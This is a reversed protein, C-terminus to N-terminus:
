SDIPDRAYKKWSDKFDNGETLNRSEIHIGKEDRQKEPANKSDQIGIAIEPELNKPVGLTNLVAEM